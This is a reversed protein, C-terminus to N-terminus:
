SFQIMSYITNLEVLLTPAYLLYHYLSNMLSLFPTNIRASVKTVHFHIIVFCNTFILEQVNVDLFTSSIDVNKIKQVHRIFSTFNGIKFVYGSIRAIICSLVMKPVARIPGHHIDILYFM